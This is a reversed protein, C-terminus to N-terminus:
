KRKVMRDVCWGNLYYSLELSELIYNQVEEKRKEGKLTRIKIANDYLEHIYEEPLTKIREDFNRIKVEKLPYDSSTTDVRNIFPEKFETLLQNRMRGIEYQDAMSPHMTKQIKEISALSKLREFFGQPKEDGVM